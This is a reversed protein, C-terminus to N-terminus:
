FKHPGHNNLQHNGSGYGVLKKVGLSGGPYISHEGFIAGFVM